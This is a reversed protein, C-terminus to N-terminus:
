VLRVITILNKRLFQGFDLSRYLTMEFFVLIHIMIYYSGILGDLKELLPYTRNIGWSKFDLFL